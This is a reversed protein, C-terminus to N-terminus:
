YNAFDGHLKEAAEIYAQHAAEPTTFYGIHIKRNMHTIQAHWKKANKHWCIGKFGSTNKSNKGQNHQNQSRTAQRLNLWRNDNKVGNIHDTYKPPFSGTMFLFALRHAYYQKGALEIPIYGCNDLCGAVSGVRVRNTGSKLRVFIGTDPDYHLCEKLESQTIM